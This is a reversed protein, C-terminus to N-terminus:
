EMWKEDNERWVAPMDMIWWLRKHVNHNNEFKIPKDNSGKM